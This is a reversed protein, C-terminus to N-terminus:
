YCKTIVNPSRDPSVTHLIYGSVGPRYFYYGGLGLGSVESSITNEQWTGFITM